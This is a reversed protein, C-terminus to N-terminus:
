FTTYHNGNSTNTWEVYDDDEDDESDHEESILSKLLEPDNMYELAEERELNYEDVLHQIQIEHDIIALAVDITVYDVNMISIFLSRYPFAKIADEDSLQYRHKLAKVQPDLGQRVVAKSPNGEHEAEYIAAKLHANKDIITASKKRSLITEKKTYTNLTNIINFNKSDINPYTKYFNKLSKDHTLKM